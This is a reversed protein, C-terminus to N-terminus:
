GPFLAQITTGGGPRSVVKLDGGLAEARERMGRLGVSAAAPPLAPDFGGGDDVVELRLVEGALLRVTVSTAGGHRVANTIAERVIRLLAERTPPSVSSGAALELRLRVGAREAVSEAERAIAAELPEDLPQTLAAVARRSEDLAREAAAALQVPDGPPGGDLMARTRGAIFALEQALGDHLERAVRRREELIAAARESAFIQRGAGYALVAIAALRLLDGTYLWESVRSPFLVHNVRSFVLLAAGVAFWRMLEDGTREARLTLGAAAVAYCLAGLVHMVIVAPHGALTVGHSTEPSLSPEIAEPWAGSALAVVLALGGLAALSALGALVAAQRRRRLPPGDWWAAAAFVAAGLLSATLPAWTAFRDPADEAIAPVVYLLLSSGALIGLACALGLKGPSGHERFRTLVLQAAFLGIIGAATELAVHGAPSRYAFRAGPLFEVALTALVGAAGAAITLTRSAIPMRIAGRHPANM